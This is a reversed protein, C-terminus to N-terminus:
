IKIKGFNTEIKQLIQDKKLNEIIIEIDKYFPRDVLTIDIVKDFYSYLYESINSYNGGNIKKARLNALLEAALIYWLNNVIKALKLVSNAGMSVHDEQNASVPISDVSAPHSLIKNESVLSAATYQVIMLGSNLGADEALFPPMGSLNSNLLRELRRESINGLESAAIGMFDGYLALIEGHFNGQSYIKDESFILPNDTVSNIEIKIKNIVDHYVEKIAGHVQPICRISYADQVKGSNQSKKLIESEGFLNLINFATDIQGKYPRVKHNEPQFPSLKGKLNEITFGAVLDFYKILKEIQFLSDLFNSSMYPTGNVLALGEKYSLEMPKIQKEELVKKSDVRKGNEIIEGEGICALVIHSLPALDGSAGLSGKEPIYVYLDKNLIDLLTELNKLQIGSIGHLLSQIRLLITGRVIEKKVPNGYGASHSRIINKQLIKTKDKTIKIKALDGFGTNIGYVTKEENVIKEVIKRSKEIRKIADKSISVKEGNYVVRKYNDFDLNKDLIVM